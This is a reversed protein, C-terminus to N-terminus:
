NKLLTEIYEKTSSFDGGNDIVVDAYRRFERDDLQKSLIADIKEDSYHRSTKLRDRRVDIPAFIYWLADLVEYYHEEILLAAELFYYKYKGETRKEKVDEMIIERMMPHIIGDLALRKKEDSFVEKAFAARNMMGDANYLKQDPFAKVIESYCRGGPKSEKEALRDSYLVFSDAREDLYSLVESKGAGVGGTVGIFKM